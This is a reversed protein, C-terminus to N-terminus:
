PRYLKITRQERSINPTSLTVVLLLLGRRVGLLGELSPEPHELLSILNSPHSGEDQQAVLRGMLDYIRWTIQRDSLARLEQLLEAPTTPSQTTSSNPNSAKPDRTAPGKGWLSNARGPTAYNQTVRAPLWNTAGEDDHLPDVREWAIGAKSKMGRPLRATDYSGADITQGKADILGAVGARDPLRPLAVELVGQAPLDYLAMLSSPNSTLVVFTHPLLSVDPLSIVSVTEADRGVVLRYPSLALPEDTPNHLEIYEAGEKQPHPMIESLIVHHGARTDISPTPKPDPTAPPDPNPQPEPRPQPQPKPPDKEGTLASSIRLQSLQWAENNKKSYQCVWALSNKPEFTPQFEKNTGVLLRQGEKTPFAVELRWGVGEHYDVRYDLCSVHASADGEEEILTKTEHYSIQPSSGEARLRLSLTVLAVGYHMGGISLAVYDYTDGQQSLCCLLVYSCNASSPPVQWRLRGEFRPSRPLVTSTSLVSLGRSKPIPAHLQIAGGQLRFHSRDLRWTPAPPEIGEGGLDPEWIQARLPLGVSLLLCLLYTSLRM